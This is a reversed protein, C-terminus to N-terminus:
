TLRSSSAGGPCPTRQASAKPPARDGPSPNATTNNERTGSGASTVVSKRVTVAPVRRARSTPRGAGGSLLASAAAKEQLVHLTQHPLPGSAELRDHGLQARGRRLQAARLLLQLLPLPLQALLRHDDLQQLLDANHQRRFEVEVRQDLARYSAAM